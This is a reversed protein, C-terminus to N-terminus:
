FFDYDGLYLLFLCDAHYVAEFFGGVYRLVCCVPEICQYIVQGVCAIYTHYAQEVSQRKFDGFPCQRLDFLCERQHFTQCVSGDSFNRAVVGTFASCLCVFVSVFM